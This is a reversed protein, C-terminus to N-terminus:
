FGISVMALCAISSVNPADDSEKFRELNICLRLALDDTMVCRVEAACGANHEEYINYLVYGNDHVAFVQKGAWGSVSLMWPGRSFSITDEISYFYARDIWDERSPHIWYVRLDNRLRNGNGGPLVVGLRPVFQVINFGADIDAYQSCYADFGIDVSRSVRHDMGAFVVWARGDSTGDDYTLYHYGIRLGGDEIGSNSYALTIDQQWLNDGSSRTINIYDIEAEVLHEPGFRLSGYMGALDADNRTASGQYSLYGRYPMLTISAPIGAGSQLDFREPGAGGAGACLGVLLVAVVAPKIM